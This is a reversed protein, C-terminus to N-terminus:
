RDAVTQVLFAAVRLKESDNVNYPGSIEELRWRIYTLEENIPNHGGGQRRLAILAALGLPLQELDRAHPGSVDVFPGDPGFGGTPATSEHLAEESVMCLRPHDCEIHGIFRDFPTAM